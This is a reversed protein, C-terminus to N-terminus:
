KKARRPTGKASKASTNTRLSTSRTQKAYGSDVDVDDAFSDDAMDKDPRVFDVSACFQLADPEAAITPTPHQMPEPSVKPSARSLASVDKGEREAHLKSLMEVVLQRDAERQQKLQQFEVAM